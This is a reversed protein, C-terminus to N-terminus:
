AAMAPHYSYGPMPLAFEEAGDRNLVASLGLLATSACAPCQTACNGVCDCDQCLFASKLPIHEMMRSTM